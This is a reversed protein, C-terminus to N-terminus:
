ADSRQALSLECTRLWRLQLLPLGILYPAVLAIILAALVVGGTGLAGNVGALWSMSFMLLVVTLVGLALAARATWLAVRDGWPRGLSLGLAAAAFGIALLAAPGDVLLDRVPLGRFVGLAILVATVANSGAFFWRM